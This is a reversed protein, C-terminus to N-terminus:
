YGRVHPGRYVRNRRSRPRREGHAADYVLASFLLVAGLGAVVLGFTLGAAGSGSLILIVAIAMLLLSAPLGRDIVVRRMM